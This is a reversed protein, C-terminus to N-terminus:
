ENEQITKGGGKAGSRVWRVVVGLYKADDFYTSPLSHEENVFTIEVETGDEKAYFSTSAGQAAAKKSYWAHYKKEAM